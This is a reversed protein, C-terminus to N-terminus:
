FFFFIYIEIKLNLILIILTCKQQAAPPEDDSDDNADRIKAKEKWQSYRNTKYSAPIWAGSETRIKGVKSTNNITIMKKKKRDWKKMNTQLRRTEESDGTLDMEARSAASKFNNVALGAQTDKDSASYPIYFEDDKVKERKPKKTMRYLDDIKRKKKEKLDGFVAKIDDASSEPLKSVNKVVNNKEEEENNQENDKQNYKIISDKHLARKTKMIQYATNSSKAGIEFVTGPPRYKKMQLLIDVTGSETKDRFEPIVGANSLNLTKSKKLSAGSAGPRSRIVKDYSNKCVNEQNQLDHSDFNWRLLESLENEIMTQPLKGFPITGELSEETDSPSVVKLKIGLFPELDLVYPFEDTSVLSYATGSRGARACRGSFFFCVFM